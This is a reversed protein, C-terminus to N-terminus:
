DTTGKKQNVSYQLNCILYANSCNCSMSLYFVQRVTYRGMTFPVTGIMNAGSHPPLLRLVCKNLVDEILKFDVETINGVGTRGVNRVVVVDGKWCLKDGAMCIARNRPAPLAQDLFYVTFGDGLSVNTGPMRLIRVRGVDMDIVNGQPRGFYVWREVCLDDITRLRDIGVDLSLTILTAMTDDAKFYCATVLSVPKPPDM